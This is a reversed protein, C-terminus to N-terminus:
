NERYYDPQTRLPYAILAEGDLLEKRLSVVTPRPNDYTTYAYSGGSLDCCCTYLTMEASGDPLRACGRSQAAFNLIHFLQGGAGEGALAPSNLAAFAARVFRGPSSLDGPLGVAGLGFSLPQLDVAGSFRNEPQLPSLSLYRSLNTMHWSFDPANALVGTPNDTIRLGDSLPEIVVAGTKDAMLWHMATLPLAPSFAEQWLNVGELLSCAEALTRCQGLVFPILEFPAVNDMGPRHPHYVAYGPFNLGAMALGHENLADYYLPYGAAIHAMGLMAHHATMAPSDRLPLPFSRPTLVVQEGPSRPLDLNRGFHGAYCVATCM